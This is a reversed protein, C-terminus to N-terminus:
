REFGDRSYYQYTGNEYQFVTGETAKSLLDAPFEVEELVINNNKDTIDTLYIQNGRDEEVMYLHGEKRFEELKKDQKDLVEKTMQTIQNNINKTDEKNEIYEGNEMRLVSGITINEPLKEKEIQITSNENGQYKYITYKDLQKGAIFYLEGKNETQKAYEQLIEKQKNNITNRSVVSIKRQKQMEGLIGKGSIKEELYEGLEKVFNQVFNSEKINNTLENLFDLNM